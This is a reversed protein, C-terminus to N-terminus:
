RPPRPPESALRREVYGVAEEEGRAVYIAALPRGYLAASYEVVALYFSAEGAGIRAVRAGAVHPPLREPVYVKEGACVGLVGIAAALDAHRSWRRAEELLPEVVERPEGANTDHLLLLETGANEALRGALRRLFERGREEEVLFGCAPDFVLEVGPM